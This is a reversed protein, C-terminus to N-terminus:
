DFIGLLDIVDYCTGRVETFLVAVIFTLDCFSWLNRIRLKEPRWLFLNTLSNADIKNFVMM